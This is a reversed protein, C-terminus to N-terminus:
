AAENSSALRLPRVGLLRKVAAVFEDRAFPKVLIANAGAEEAFARDCPSSRGSMVLIPLDRLAPHGRVFDMLAYGSGEALVLDTCILEVPGEELKALAQREDPAEIVDLDEAELLERLEARLDPYDEVILVRSRAM